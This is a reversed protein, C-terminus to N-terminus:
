SGVLRHRRFKSWEASPCKTGKLQTIGIRYVGRPRCKVIVCIYHSTPSVRAWFGQVHWACIYTITPSQAKCGMSYNCLTIALGCGCCEFWGGSLKQLLCDCESTASNDGAPLRSNLHVTFPQNAAQTSQLTLGLPGSDESVQM